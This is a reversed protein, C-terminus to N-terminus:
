PRASRRAVFGDDHRRQVVFRRDRGLTEDDPEVDGFGIRQDVVLFERGLDSGADGIDHAPQAHRRFHM